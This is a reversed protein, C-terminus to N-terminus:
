PRKRAKPKVPVTEHAPHFRAFAHYGLYLSIAVGVTVVIFTFKTDNSIFGRIISYILTFVSSLVIGDSIATNALRMRELTLGVALLVVASVLAIISVNRSYTQYKKNYASMDIEYQRQAARQQDTLEEQKYNSTEVPYRPEPPGEYFTNIGLGIFLALIFGLFVTYIYKIM